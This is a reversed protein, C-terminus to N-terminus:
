KSEEVVFETNIWLSNTIRGWTAQDKSVSTEYIHVFEGQYLIFVSECQVDPCTRVNLESASVRYATLPTETTTSVPVSTNTASPTNYVFPSCAVLLVLLILPLPSKSIKKAM